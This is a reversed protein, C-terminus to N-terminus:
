LIERKFEPNKTRISFEAVPQSSDEVLSAMYAGVAPGLKFGHGSGGGILWVNHHNPHRDLILHGTSTNSYQCVTADVVRANRLKPIRVSAALLSATQVKKSPTRDVHDPDFIPGLKTLGIKTGHGDIDPLSYIGEHFDIWAPIPISNARQANDKSRIFFVEQRTIRLLPSLLHPFVKPLWPGCAFIFGGASVKTGDSLKIADINKHPRFSRVAAVRYDVGNQKIREILTTIAHDAQLIGSAPELVAGSIGEVNFAPYRTSVENASLSEVAVNLKNLTKFTDNVYSHHEHNIWLVGTNNFLTENTETSLIKWKNLSNLAWESYLEKNGYGIRIIRTKGGSSSKSHGAGLADVLLVSHGSTRLHHATWAGFVGAGIVVFDPSCPMHLSIM